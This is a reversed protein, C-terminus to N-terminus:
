WVKIILEKIEINGDPYLIKHVYSVAEVAAEESVPQTMDIDSDSPNAYIAFDFNAPVGLQKKLENYHATYNEKMSEINKFSIIKIKDLSGITYNQSNILAPNSCSIPTTDQDLDPSLYVKFYKEPPHAFKLNNSSFISGILGGTILRAISNSGSDINNMNLSYCDFYAISPNLKFFITTLNTSASKEFSDHIGLIISDPLMTQKYPKIYVLIFFIFTVFLIFSIIMEIHLAGKKARKKM